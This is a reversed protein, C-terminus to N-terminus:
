RNKQQLARILEASPGECRLSARRVAGVQRPVRAHPSPLRALSLPFGHVDATLMARRRVLSQHSCRSVDATGRGAMCCWPRGRTMRQPDLTRWVVKLGGAPRGERRRAQGCGCGCQVGWPSSQAWPWSWWWSMGARPARSHRRMQMSYGTVRTRDRCSWSGSGYERGRSRDSGGSLSRRGGPGVGSM